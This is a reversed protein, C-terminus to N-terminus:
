NKFMEPHLFRGLAIIVADLYIDTRSVLKNTLVGVHGEQQKINSRGNLLDIVDGLEKGQLVHTMISQPTPIRASSSISEQGKRDVVVCWGCDFWWSDVLELGGELGVGYQATMDLNLAARARNRAGTISESPTMPQSSVGSSVKLGGIEWNIDPWVKKFAQHVATIKVPNLTGVVIKAM